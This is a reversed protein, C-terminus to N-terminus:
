WRRTWWSTRFVEGPGRRLPPPTRESPCPARRRHLRLREAGPPVAAHLVAASGKFGELRKVDAGLAVEAAVLDLTREGGEGPGVWWLHPAPRGARGAASVTSSQVADHPTTHGCCSTAPTAPTCAHHLWTTPTAHCHQPPCQANHTTRQANHTVGSRTTCVCTRCHLLLAWRDGSRTHAQARCVNM